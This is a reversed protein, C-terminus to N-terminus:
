MCDVLVRGAGEQTKRTRPQRKTKTLRPDRTSWFTRIRLRRLVQPKPARIGHSYLLSELQRCHEESERLRQEAEWRRREAQLLRDEM